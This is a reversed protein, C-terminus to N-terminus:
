TLFTCDWYFSIFIFITEWTTKIIEELQATIKPQVEM